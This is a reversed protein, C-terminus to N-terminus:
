RSIYAPVPDVSATDPDVSATDPDISATDPDTVHLSLSESPNDALKQPVSTNFLTV